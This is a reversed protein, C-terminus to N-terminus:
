NKRSAKYREKRLAELLLPEENMYEAATLVRTGQQVAVELIPKAWNKWALDRLTHHDIILTKLSLELLLEQLMKQARKLFDLGYRPGLYTAPGDLFLVQPRMEKIFSVAKEEVPGNLDSSHLFGFGDEKVFVSVVGGFCREPGHTLSPSLIIQTNGSIIEKEEATEWFIQNSELRKLLERARQAQNRNIANFPDKLIVRKGKFDKAWEPDYHDYHYHTIVVLDCEKLKQRIKDKLERLRQWEIEDPPLGYRKPGLAAGPDIMMTLDRTRIFTAMSRVGLSEAALIEIQM